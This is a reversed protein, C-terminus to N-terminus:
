LQRAMYAVDPEPNVNYPAIETFGLKQYLANAATLRTLTDLVMTQYGLAKAEKMLHECLARGTGKSQVGPTVFLRKMECTTDSHPLLGVAGIPHGDLKALLLLAYKNPFSAMEEDIGQFDFDIPMWNVYDLFLQKVAAVDEDTTAQTIELTM